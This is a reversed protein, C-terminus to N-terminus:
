SVSGGAQVITLVTTGTGTQTIRIGRVPFQYNGDATATGAALTSNNSWNGTSPDYGTAFVDDFTHQVTYSVTGTVQCHLAINFPVHYTDTPCVASTTAGTISLTVPRM